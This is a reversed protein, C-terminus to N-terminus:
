LTTQTKCEDVAVVYALAWAAGGCLLVDVSVSAIVVALLCWGGRNSVMASLRSLRGYLVCKQLQALDSLQALGGPPLDIYGLDLYTVQTLPRTTYCTHSPDIVCFFRTVTPPAWADTCLAAVYFM